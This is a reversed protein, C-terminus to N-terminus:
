IILSGRHCFEDLQDNPYVIWYKRINHENPQEENRKQVIFTMDKKGEVKTYGVGNGLAVLERFGFEQEPNVPIWNARPEGANIYDNIINLLLESQVMYHQVNHRGFQKKLNLYKQKYKLYKKSLENYLKIIYNKNM